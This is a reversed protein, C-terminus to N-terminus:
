SQKLLVEEVVKPFHAHELQHIRAALMEPTDSPLVPCAAQFIIDGHDYHEDVYHITIGSQLDGATIVAQHVHHGFMGKGGYNPLLAPHINMIKRPYADVLAQPIKWLFGALVVLDTGADRLEPLYADGEVFRKKEIHLVPIGEKDAIRVVGANPRNCVILAVKATESNRFYDIIKQANSGAGSAFITINKVPSAPSAALNNKKKRGTMRSGMRALYQRFFVFQGTILSVTMVSFPWIVTVVIIYLPLYLAAQTIGTLEMVKKAAIGSLSGGVAFTVLILVLRGASVGWKQKLRELMIFNRTAFNPRLGSGISLMLFPQFISKLM